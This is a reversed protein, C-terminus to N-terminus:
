RKQEQVNDQRQLFSLNEEMLQSFCLIPQLRTTTLSSKMGGPLWARKPISSQSYRTTAFVLPVSSFIKRPSLLFDVKMWLPAVFGSSVLYFTLSLRLHYISLLQLYKLWAANNINAKDFALYTESVHAKCCASIFSWCPGEQVQLEQFCLWGWHTIPDESSNRPKFLMVTVKCLNKGKICIPFHNELWTLYPQSM